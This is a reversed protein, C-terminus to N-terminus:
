KCCAIFRINSCQSMTIQGGSTIILGRIYTHDTARSWGECNKSRSSSDSLGSTDVTSGNGLSLPKALVWASGTMTEVAAANYPSEAFETTNCIHSDPVFNHCAQQMAILGQGGNMTVTSFGQFVSKTPQQMSEIRAHNDNVAAQIAEFNANMQAASTVQGDEFQNPVNLESALAFPSILTLSLILLKKMIIEQKCCAIKALSSCEQTGFAGDGNIFTGWNSSNQWNDCNRHTTDDQNIYGGLQTERETKISPLIWAKGTATSMAFDGRKTGLVEDVSCVHSGAVFNECAELMEFFGVAGNMSESTFGRFQTRNNSQIESLQNKLAEIEVKLAQFNENMQSASTVQGDEFQNPIEIAYINASLLFALLTYTLNKMNMEQKCCAIPYSNECSSSDFRGNQITHGHGSACSELRGHWKKEHIRLSNGAHNDDFSATINANTLEKAIWAHGALITNTNSSPSLTLEDGTCIRSGSSVAECASAFAHVGATGIIPASYGQFSIVDPQTTNLANIATKIAQFNANMEAASTVQGDEFENPIEFEALTFCSLASTLLFLALNKM